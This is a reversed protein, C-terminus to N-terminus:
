RAMFSVISAPSIPAGSINWEACRLGDTGRPVVVAHDDVGAHVVDVDRPEQEVGLHHRRPHELRAPVAVGGVM